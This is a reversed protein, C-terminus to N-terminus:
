FNRFCLQIQLFIQFTRQFSAWPCNSLFRNDYNATLLASIGYGHFSTKQISYRFRDAILTFGIVGEVEELGFAKSVHITGVQYNKDENELYADWGKAKCSALITKIIGQYEEKLQNKNNRSTTTM